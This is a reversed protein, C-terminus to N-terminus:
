PHPPTHSRANGGWTAGRGYSERPQTAPEFLHSKSVFHSTVRFEFHPLNATPGASSPWWGLGATAPQSPAHTPTPAPDLPAEVWERGGEGGETAPSPPPAAWWSGRLNQPNESSIGFRTCFYLRQISPWCGGLGATIPPEPPYPIPPPVVPGRVWGSGHGRGVRWLQAPSTPKMLWGGWWKPWTSKHSVFNSALFAANKLCFSLLCHPLPGVPMGDPYVM